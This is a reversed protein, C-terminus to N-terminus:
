FNISETDVYDCIIERLHIPSVENKCLINIIGTVMEKKTSIYKVESEVSTVKKDKSIDERTVKVGYELISDQKQQTVKYIYSREIGDIYKTTVKKEIVM